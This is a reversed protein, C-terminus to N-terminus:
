LHWSNPLVMAAIHQSSISQRRKWKKHIKYVLTGPIWFKAVWGHAIFCFTKRGTLLLHMAGLNYNVKMNLLIIIFSMYNNNYYYQRWCPSIQLGCDRKPLVRESTPGRHATYRSQCPGKTLKVGKLPPTRTNARWPARGGRKVKTNGRTNRVGQERRGERM